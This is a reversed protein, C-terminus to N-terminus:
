MLCGEIEEAAILNYSSHGSGDIRVDACAGNFVGADFLALNVFRVGGVHSIGLISDTAYGRSFYPARDGGM